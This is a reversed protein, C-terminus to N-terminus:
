VPSSVRERCSARRDGFGQRMVKAHVHVKKIMVFLNFIFKNKGLKCMEKM